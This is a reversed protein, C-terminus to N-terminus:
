VGQKHTKEKKKYLHSLIFSIVNLFEHYGKFGLFSFKIGALPQGAILFAFWKFFALSGQPCRCGYIFKDPHAM